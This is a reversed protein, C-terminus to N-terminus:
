DGLGHLVWSQCDDSSGTYHALDCENGTNHRSRGCTWCRHPVKKMAADREKQLREIEAKYGEIIAETKLDM